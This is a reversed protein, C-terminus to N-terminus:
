CCRGCCGHLCLQKQLTPVAESLPQVTHHAPPKTLYWGLWGLLIKGASRCAFRCACLLGACTCRATTDIPAQLTISPRHVDSPTMRHGPCGRAFAYVVHSCVLFCWLALFVASFTSPRQAGLVELWGVVVRASRVPLVLVCDLHYVTFLAVRADCTVRGVCCGVNEGFV